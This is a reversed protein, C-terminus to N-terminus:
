KKPSFKWGHETRFFPRTLGPREEGNRRVIPRVLAFELDQTIKENESAKLVGREVVEVRVVEPVEAESERPKIFDGLAADFEDRQIQKKTLAQMEEFSLALETATRTDGTYVARYFRLAVDEVSADDKVPTTSPPAADSVEASAVPETVVVPPAPRPRHQESGCGLVLLLALGSSFRM